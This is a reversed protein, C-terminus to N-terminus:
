STPPSPTTARRRRTSRRRGAEIIYGLYEEVTEAVQGPSSFGANGFGQWSLAYTLTCIPCAATNGTLPGIKVNAGFVETWIREPKGGEAWETVPALGNPKLPKNYISNASECNSFATTGLRPSRYTPSASLGNNQVEVTKAAKALADPLGAFGITGATAAVYEAEEGGSTALHLNSGACGLPKV